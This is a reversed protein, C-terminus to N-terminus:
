PQSLFDVAIAYDARGKFYETLVSIPQKAVADREEPKLLPTIWYDRFANADTQNGKRLKRWWTLLLWAITAEDLAASFESQAIIHRADEIHIDVFPAFSENPMFAMFQPMNNGRFTKTCQFKPSNKIFSDMSKLDSLTVRAPNAYCHMDWDSFTDEGICIAIHDTRVPPKKGPARLIRPPLLVDKFNAEFGKAFERITKNSLENCAGPPQDDHLCSHM